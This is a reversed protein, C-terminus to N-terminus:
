DTVDGEGGPSSSGSCTKVLMLRQPAAVRRRLSYRDSGGSGAPRLTETVIPVVEMETDSESESENEPDPTRIHENEPSSNVEAESSDEVGSEEPEVASDNETALEAADGNLLKQVWKPPRGPSHRRTGYWYYGPPFESPCPTVRSLHVRIPKDQPSYVRVVTVDPDQRSLVRYPGHWPRSLKRLRGSEEHPFKVLVWDGAKLPLIAAKRDYLAKYRKQAKQISKAALERATSLTLIVQERYNAVATPEIPNPPLLAAETPTRCDFGFLLFSPKEGTAEHPTNRYAWLVGTAIGSHDM